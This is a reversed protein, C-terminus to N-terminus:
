SKVEQDGTIDKVSKGAEGEKNEGHALIKEAKRCATSLYRDTEAKLQEVQYRAKEIIGKAKTGADAYIEKAEKLVEHGKKNIDARLDKGSKPALLIGAVAGLFSGMLFGMVLHGRQNKHEPM